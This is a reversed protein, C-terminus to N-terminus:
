HERRLRGSSRIGKRLGSSRVPSSVEYDLWEATIASSSSEGGGLAEAFGSMFGGGGTAAIDRKSDFPDGILDGSGTFGSQAVLEDGVKLFPVWEKVSVAANGLANPDGAADPLKEPWPKPMHGLTIPRELVEAPRLVTKLVTLEKTASGEYREIVVQLEVSHWDSDALAPYDADAKWEITQTAEAVVEGSKADPRLVDMPVWHGNEDREIWWHDRLADIAAQRASGGGSAANTQVTAYLQQAQTHALMKAEDRRRVSDAVLEDLSTGGDFSADVMKKLEPSIPKLETANRRRDPIPPLRDLIEATRGDSLRAHALRVTYGARRLLDGLLLARDLNSGVRDLMVGRPGRLVGRYPAWWTHDKVWQFHAQPNNGLSEALAAPDFEVRPLKAAEAAILDVLAGIETVGASSLASPAPEGTQSSAVSSQATDASDAENKKGSCSVFLAVLAVLSLRWLRSNM